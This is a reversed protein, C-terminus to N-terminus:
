YAKIFKLTKLNKFVRITDNKNNKWLIFPPKLNLISGKNPVSDHYLEQYIENNDKFAERQLESLYYSKTLYVPEKIRLTSDNKNIEWFIETPTIQQEYDVLIRTTNVIYRVSFLIVLFFIAVISYYAVRENKM